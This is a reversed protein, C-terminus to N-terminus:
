GLKLAKGIASLLKEPIYPKTIWAIVGAAKGQAKMEPNSETTLMFIPIKKLQADEQVKKCMTIGDIRPMNVDCLILQTDRNQELVELGNIGDIAEIPQHGAEQLTKKLQIRLTESDDVILIKAM